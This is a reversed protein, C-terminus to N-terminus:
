RRPRVVNGSRAQRVETGLRFAGVMDRITIIASDMEQPILFGGVTNGSESTAKELAIGNEGCWEQSSRIGALAKFFHGCREARQEAGPGTFAQVRNNSM